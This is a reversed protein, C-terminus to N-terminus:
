VLNLIGSLNEIWLAPLYFFQQLFDGPLSKPAIKKWGLLCCFFRTMFFDLKQKLSPNKKTFRFNKVRKSATRLRPKLKKTWSYSLFRFSAWILNLARMIQQNITMSISLDRHSLEVPHGASPWSRLCSSGLHLTTPEFGLEPM